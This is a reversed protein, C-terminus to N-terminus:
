LPSNEPPSHLRKALELAGLGTRPGFGLLLLDDLAIIRRNKGAPTEAVGPLRLVADTGGLVDMGRTPVVIVDPAATVVAESTLPKYSEYDFPNVGGALRIMADAATNRGAVSIAAPSRSYIFMVKPHVSAKEVVARAAAIDRDLAAILAEGNPERRLASAIMRIRDKAGEISHEASVTFTTGGGNIIHTLAAPPGAEQTTIVLSPKLSLVGEASLTRVYGVQPLKTVSEPYVSSADTGVLLSEAGLACVTETVAGGATVIRSADGITVTNGTADRIVVPAGSGASAARQCSAAGLALFACAGLLFLSRLNRAAHSAKLHSKHAARPLPTILRARPDSHLM